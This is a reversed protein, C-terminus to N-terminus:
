LRAFNLLSVLRIEDWETPVDSSIVNFVRRLLVKLITEQGFVTCHVQHVEPVLRFGQCCHIQFGAVYGWVFDAFDSPILGVRQEQTRSPLVRNSGDDKQIPFVKLWNWFTDDFTVACPDVVECKGGILAFDNQSRIIRQDFYMLERLKDAFPCVRVLGVAWHPLNGETIIPLVHSCPRLSISHVNVVNLVSSFGMSNRGLGWCHHHLPVRFSLNQAVDVLFPFYPFVLLSLIGIDM